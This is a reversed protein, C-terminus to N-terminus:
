YKTHLRELSIERCIVKYCSLVHKNPFLCNYIKCCMHVNNPKYPINALKLFLSTCFDPPLNKFTFTFHFRVVPLGLDLLSVTFSSRRPSLFVQHPRTSLPAVSLPSMLPCLVTVACDCHVELYQGLM